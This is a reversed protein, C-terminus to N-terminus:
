DGAANGQGRNDADDPTLVVEGSHVTVSGRGAVALRLNGNGDLGDFGGTLGADGGSTITMLTGLPIARASWEAIMAALGCSRWRVLTNAFSQALMAAFAEVTVIYGLDALAAVTRGTSQPAFALNVGIGVVTAGGQRELLIGSVKADGVLLDNPWKIALRHASTDPLLQAITDFVAVASVLALTAPPPDNPQGIVVTSGHFNGSDSLWARGQRGRGSSQRRAILWSGEPPPHGSAIDALLDSNTSGTVDVINLTAV